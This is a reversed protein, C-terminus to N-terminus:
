IAITQSNFVCLIDRFSLCIEVLLLFIRDYVTDMLRTEVPDTLVLVVKSEATVHYSELTRRNLDLEVLQADSDDDSANTPVFLRQRKLPFEPRMEDIRRKLDIVNHQATIDIPPLDGLLTKVVLSM